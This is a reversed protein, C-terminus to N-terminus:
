AWRRSEITRTNLYLFLGIAGVFYVVDVAEIVGQYLSSFHQYPSLKSTLNGLWEPLMSVIAPFGILYLAFTLSCALIFAIIQNETMSSVWASVALILAGLLFSALYACYIPGWDFPTKPDALSSVMWPLPFTLLLAVLVLALAGIYKGLVIEIDRVPLTMLLEITGTKKEEAWLRMGIAPIFFMFLWPVYVFFGDLQAAGFAFFRNLFLMLSSGIVLFLLLFIYSSPSSVYGRVERALVRYINSM